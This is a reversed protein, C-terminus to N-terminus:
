GKKGRRTANFFKINNNRCGFRYFSIRPFHSPFTVINIKSM